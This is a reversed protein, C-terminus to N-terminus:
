FYQMEISIEQKSHMLELKAESFRPARMKKPPNNSLGYGETPLGILNKDMIGNGNEDHLLAIAYQGIPLGTVWFTKEGNPLIIVDTFFASQHNEPFGAESNFISLWIKGKDSRLGKVTIKMSLMEEGTTNARASLQAKM